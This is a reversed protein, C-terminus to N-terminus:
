FGDHDGHSADTLSSSTRAFWKGKRVDISRQIDNDRRKIRVCAWVHVVTVEESEVAYYGWDATFASSLDSEM